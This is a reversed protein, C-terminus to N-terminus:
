LYMSTLDHFTVDTMPRPAQCVPIRLFAVADRQQRIVKLHGSLIDDLNVPASPLYPHQKIILMDNHLTSMLAVNINLM